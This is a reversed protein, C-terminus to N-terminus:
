GLLKGFPWLTKMDLWAAVVFLALMFVGGLVFAFFVDVGTFGRRVTEAPGDEELPLPHPVAEPRPPPLAEPMPPQPEPVSMFLADRALAKEREVVRRGLYLTVTEVMRALDDSEAILTRGARNEQMFRFTHRDRAMEVFAIMDIFLRPKELPVLGHDFMEADRPLQAFIPALAENLSELRAIEAQRLDAAMSSREADEMRARRVAAKLDPTSGTPTPLSDNM